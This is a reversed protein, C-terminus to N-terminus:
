EGGNFRVEFIQRLRYSRSKVASNVHEELNSAVVFLTVDLSELSSFHNM